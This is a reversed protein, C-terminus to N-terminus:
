TLTVRSTSPPSCVTFSLRGATTDVSTVEIQRALKAFLKRLDESAGHLRLSEETMPEDAEAVARVVKLLEHREGTLTEVVDAHTSLLKPSNCAHSIFAEEAVLDYLNERAKKRLDDSM